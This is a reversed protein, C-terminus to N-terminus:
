IPGNSIEYDRQSFEMSKNVVIQEVIRVTRRLRGTDGHYRSRLIEVAAIREAPSKKL